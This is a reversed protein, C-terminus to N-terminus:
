DIFQFKINKNVFFYGKIFSRIHNLVPKTIKDINVDYSDSNIMIKPHVEYNAIIGNILDRVVYGSDNDLIRVINTPQIYKTTKM